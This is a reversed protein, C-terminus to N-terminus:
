RASGDPLLGVVLGDLGETFCAQELWWSPDLPGSRPTVCPLAGTGWDVTAPDIPEGGELRFGVPSAEDARLTTRLARGEPVEPLGTGPVFRGAVWLGEPEDGVFVETARFATNGPSGLALALVTVAQEPLPTREGEIEDDDLVVDDAALWDATHRDLEFWTGATSMWRVLPDEGEAPAARLRLAGGPAVADGPEAELEERADVLLEPGALDAVALPLVGASLGVPAHVDRPPRALEVFAREEDSGHLAVLGLVRRDAPVTLEPEPGVADPETLPDVDELEAPDALLYWRLDIPVESFPHGDVIVAVRASTTGGDEVPEADVAAVRFGVLDHRDAGFPAQCASLLFALM